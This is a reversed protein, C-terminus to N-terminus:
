SCMRAKTCCCIGATTTADASRAAVDRSGITIGNEFEEHGPPLLGLSPSGAAIPSSFRRAQWDGNESSRRRFVRGVAARGQRFRRASQDVGPQEACRHLAGPAQQHAQSHRGIPACAEDLALQLSHDACPAAARSFVPFACDSCFQWAIFPWSQRMPLNMIEGGRRHRDDAECPQAPLIFIKGDGMRGTRAVEVIKPRRRRGAPRRGLGHDRSQALFTLSYETDAYRELYSKQKGMGKVEMVSLAELPARRLADLIKEVLFPKVIAIIQKM